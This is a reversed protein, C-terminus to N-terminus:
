LDTPTFLFFLNFHSDFIQWKLFTQTKAQSKLHIVTWRMYMVTAHIEKTNHRCCSWKGQSSAAELFMRGNQKWYLVLQWLQWMCGTNEWHGRMPHLNDNRTRSISLVPWESAQLQKENVSMHLVSLLLAASMGRNYSSMEQLTCRPFHVFFFTLGKEPHWSLALYIKWDWPLGVKM